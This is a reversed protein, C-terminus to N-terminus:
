PCIPPCPWSRNGLIQGGGDMDRGGSDVGVIVLEPVGNAQLGYYIRVGVCDEQELIEDFIRREFYGGRRGELQAQGGISNAYRQKLEAAEAATIKHDRKGDYPM